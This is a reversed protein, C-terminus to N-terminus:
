WAEDLSINPLTRSTGCFSVVTPTSRFTARTVRYALWGGYLVHVLQPQHSEIRDRVRRGLRSYARRGEAARDVFEVAVDVGIERLGAVQGEM